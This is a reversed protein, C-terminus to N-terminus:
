TKLSELAAYEFLPLELDSAILTKPPNAESLFVDYMVIDMESDTCPSWRLRQVLPIDIAQNDPVPTQPVTPAANATKKEDDNKEQCSYALICISLFYLFSTSTKM